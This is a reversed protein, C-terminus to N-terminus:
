ISLDFIVEDMGSALERVYYETTNLPIEQNNHYLTLM